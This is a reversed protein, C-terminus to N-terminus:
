ALSCKLVSGRACHVLPPTLCGEGREKVRTSPAGNPRMWTYRGSRLQAMDQERVLSPQNWYIPSQKDGQFQLTLIDSRISCKNLTNKSSDNYWFFFFIAQFSSYTKLFWSLSSDNVCITCHSLRKKNEYIFNCDKSTQAHVPSICKICIPLINRYYTLHSTFGLRRVLIPFVLFRCFCIM